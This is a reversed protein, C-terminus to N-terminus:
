EDKEEKKNFASSFLSIGQIIGKVMTGLRSIPAVVEENIYDAIDSVKGILLDTSELLSATRRYFLFLIVSIFVMAASAVLGWVILIVDRWTSLEV